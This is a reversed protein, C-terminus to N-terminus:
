ATLVSPLSNEFFFKRTGPPPASPLTVTLPVAATVVVKRQRTGVFFVRCLPKHWDFIQRTRKASPPCFQRQCEAFCAYGTTNSHIKAKVHLAMGDLTIYKGAITKVFFRFAILCCAVACPQSM